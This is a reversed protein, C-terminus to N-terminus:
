RDRRGSAPVPRLQHEERDEEEDDYIDNYSGCLGFRKSKKKSGSGLSSSMQSLHNMNSMQNHGYSGKGFQM